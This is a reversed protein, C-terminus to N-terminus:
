TMQTSPLSSRRCVTWVSGYVMIRSFKFAVSPSFSLSLFFDNVSSYVMFGCTRATKSLFDTIKDDPRGSYNFWSRRIWRKARTQSRFCSSKNFSCFLEIRADVMQCSTLERLRTTNILWEPPASFVSSDNDENHYLKSIVLNAWRLRARIETLLWTRDIFFLLFCWYWYM